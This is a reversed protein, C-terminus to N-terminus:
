NQDSEKQTESHSDKVPRETPIVGSDYKVGRIPAISNQLIFGHNQLRQPSNEMLEKDPTELNINKEIPTEVDPILKIEEAFAFGTTCLIIFLLSAIKKMSRIIIYKFFM